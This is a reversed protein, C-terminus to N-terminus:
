CVGAFVGCCLDAVFVGFGLMAGISNLRLWGVSWVLM